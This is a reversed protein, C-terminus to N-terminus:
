ADEIGDLSSFARGQFCLVCDEGTDLFGFDRVILPLNLNSAPKGRRHRGHLECKHLFGRSRDVDNVRTAGNLCDCYGAPLCNASALHNTVDTSVLVETDKPNYDDEQDTRNQHQYTKSDRNGEIM